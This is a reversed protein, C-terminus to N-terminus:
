PRQEQPLVRMDMPCQRLGSRSDIFDEYCLLSHAADRHVTLSCQPDDPRCVCTVVFEYPRFSERCVFCCQRRDSPRVTERPRLLPDGPHLRRVYRVLPPDMADIAEFFARGVASEGHEEAEALGCWPLHAPDHRVEALRGDDGIRLLVPDDQRFSHACVPCYGGMWESRWTTVAPGDQVVTNVPDEGLRVGARFEKVVNREAGDGAPTAGTTGGAGTTSSAGTAGTAGTTGTM